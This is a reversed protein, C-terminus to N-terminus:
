RVNSREVDYEYKCCMTHQSCHRDTIIVGLCRDDADDAGAAAVDFSHIMITNSEDICM